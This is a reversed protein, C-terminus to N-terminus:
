AATGTITWTSSKVGTSSDYPVVLRVDFHIEDSADDYDLADLTPGGCVFANNNPVSTFTTAYTANVCSGAEVQNGKYEYAPGTGGIFTNATNSVNLNVLLFVNGDNQITFGSTEATYGNVCGTGNATTAVSTDLYCATYSGTTNVSVAGFAVADDEFMISTTTGITLSATGTDTAAGTFRALGPGQNVVLWTGAVSVVIAVVLLAALSKNSIDGM